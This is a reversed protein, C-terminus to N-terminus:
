WAFLWNLEQNMWTHVTRSWTKEKERLDNNDDMEPAGLGKPFPYHQIDKSEDADRPQPLFDISSASGTPSDQELPSSINSM